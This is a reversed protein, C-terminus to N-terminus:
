DIGGESVFHTPACGKRFSDRDDETDFLSTLVSPGQEVLYWFIPSNQYEKHDTADMTRLIRCHDSNNVFNRFHLGPFDQNFIDVACGFPGVVAHARLPVQWRNCHYMFGKTVKDLFKVFAVMSLKGVDPPMEFQDNLLRADRVMFGRKADMIVSAKFPIHFSSATMAALVMGYTLYPANMEDEYIESDMVMYRNDAIHATIVKSPLQSLDIVPIEKLYRGIKQGNPDIYNSPPTIPTGGSLLSYGEISSSFNKLNGRNDLESYIFDNIHAQDGYLVNGFHTLKAYNKENRGKNVRIWSDIRVNGNPSLTVYRNGDWNTKENM